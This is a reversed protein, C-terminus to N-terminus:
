KRMYSKLGQPLSVPKVGFLETMERVDGTNGMEMMVLQDRTLPAPKIAMEMIRAMLGMFAMPVFFNLRKRGLVSKLIDLIELYELEEPGGVDVVRGVAEDTTLARYMIETLDEIFIPQLRYKGNGIVPTVPLRTILNALQSMFRDGPGYVVSSRLIVYELGSSLIAQEARHKTRHYQSPADAAAGMASLYVIRSVGMAQSAAVVNETGRVVTQEFTATGSEAILGVLHYVTTVGGFAAELSPVDEVSGAARTVGKGATGEGSNTHVLAVVEHDATLLRNVLHRGIFGTAGTVSIRL